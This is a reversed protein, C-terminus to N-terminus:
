PKWKSISNKNVSFSFTTCFAPKLIFLFLIATWPMNLKQWTPFQTLKSIDLLYNSLNIQESSLPSNQSSIYIQFIGFYVYVYCTFLLMHSLEDLLHNYIYFLIWSASGQPVAINVFYLSSILPAQPSPMSTPPYDLSFHFSSIPM